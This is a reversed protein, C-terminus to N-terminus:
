TQDEMTAALKKVIALAFSDAEYGLQSSHIKVSGSSLHTRISSKELLNNPDIM